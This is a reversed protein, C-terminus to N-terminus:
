FCNNLYDASVLRIEIEADIRTRMKRSAAGFISDTALDIQGDAAEADMLLSGSFLHGNMQNAAVASLPGGGGGGGNTPSGLRSIVSAPTTAYSIM